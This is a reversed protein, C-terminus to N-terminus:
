QKPTDWPGARSSSPSGEATARKRDLRERGRRTAAPFFDAEVADISLGSVPELLLVHIGLGALDHRPLINRSPILDAFALIEKDLVLLKLGNLFSM